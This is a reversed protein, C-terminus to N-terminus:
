TLEGTDARNRDEEERSSFIEDDYGKEIYLPTEGSENGLTQKQKKMLKYEQTVTEVPSLSAISIAQTIKTSSIQVNVDSKIVIGKGDSKTTFAGGVSKLM